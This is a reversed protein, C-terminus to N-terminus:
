AGSSLPAAGNDRRYAEMLVKAVEPRTYEPPPMEGAALMKRVKTGSLILRYEDGCPCTKYSAMGQCKRCYFTHEFFLPTIGLEASDIEDFIKQADYTGYYPRGDPRHAGAHDRGVIFHTCGYNKRMLAHLVAERPGAYRMSAPLLSLVTRDKPYYHELIVEYCRIRVEAPVDDSKTEGVLPHLLLGDVIELACKTLYEHARHIPNRTQFAVIRRWRRQAFLERLERPSLYLEPRTLREPWEVLLVPGGALWTGHRYLQAVGPHDPDDTGYTHRAEWAVDRQFLEEVHLIGKLQGQQDVLAVAKGEQLGNHLEDEQPSLTVPMPWLVGDALRMDEVCSRYDESTMFGDLPSFAGVAIMELDCLERGSLRHVPLEQAKNRWEQAEEETAIRQVLIGGHPEITPFAGTQQV